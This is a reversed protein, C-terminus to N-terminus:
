QPRGKSLILFLSDKWSTIQTESVIWSIPRGGIGYANCICKDTRQIVRLMEKM